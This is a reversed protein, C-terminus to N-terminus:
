THCNLKCPHIGNLRSVIGLHYSTFNVYTRNLRRSEIFSSLSFMSPPNCLDRPPNLERFVLTRASIRDYLGAPMVLGLKVIAALQWPFSYSRRRKEIAQMMKSTADPLEMFFHCEQM